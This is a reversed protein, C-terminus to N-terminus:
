FIYGQQIAVGKGTISEPNLLTDGRLLEKVETIPVNYLLFHYYQSHRLHFYSM